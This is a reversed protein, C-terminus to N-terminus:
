VQQSPLPASLMTVQLNGHRSTPEPGNPCCEVIVCEFYKSGAPPPWQVAGSEIHHVLCPDTLRRGTNVAEVHKSLRVVPVCPDTASVCANPEPISVNNSTSSVSDEEHSRLDDQQELCLMRFGLVFGVETSSQWNEIGLLSRPQLVCQFVGMWAVRPHVPKLKTAKLGSIKAFHERLFHEDSVSPSRWCQPM